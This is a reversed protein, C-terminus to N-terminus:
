RTLRPSPKAAEFYQGVAQAIGGAIAHQGTMTVAVSAELPDTMSLPEILAGPMNSPTSFYGPTAVGSRSGSVRKVSVAGKKAPSM